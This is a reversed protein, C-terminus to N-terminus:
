GGVVAIRKYCVTRAGASGAMKAPKVGRRRREPPTKAPKVFLINLVQQIHIAQSQTV